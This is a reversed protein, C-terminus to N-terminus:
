SRLESVYSRILGADGAQPDLALYREFAAAAAPADGQRRRLLGLSRFATAPAQPTATVQALDQGARELDGPAERLRYVEGRAFRASADGPARALLRDLLVLSQEYQGRRVEAVLWEFRHGAIALALAPAGAEGGRSGALRLLDDRRNAAAPHTALLPNRTGADEGDTVRMEGLLNDWVQAAQAGDYGTRQMLAMGLRDARTEQERTFSFMGATIGMQAVAGAVGFLGIVQAFAARNRTDRLRELSHRELYHALEHGLVAALQAENDMRLLLGSWVQMMGNPAMTANFQANSVVHVRVDACHEGGLRCVLDQLYRVLAPDRLVFPSRRLRQEERDMLAWLGGEDTDAAPPTFRGPLVLPEPSSTAAAPLGLGLAGLGLCHRCTSRLFGRRGPAPPPALRAPQPRSTM